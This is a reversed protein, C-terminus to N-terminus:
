TGAIGTIGQASCSIQPAEGAQPSPAIYLGQKDWAGAAAKQAPKGQFLTKAGQQGSPSTDLFTEQLLHQPPQLPCTCLKRCGLRAAVQGWTSYDRECLDRAGIQLWTATDGRSSERSLEAMTVEAGGM